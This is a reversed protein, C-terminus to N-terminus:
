RGTLNRYLIGFQSVLSGLDMLILGGFVACLFAIGIYGIGQASPRDDQASTKRRLTSSLNKKPISIYAAVSSMKSQFSKQEEENMITESVPCLCKCLKSISSSSSIFSSPNIRSNVISGSSSSVSSDVISRSNGSDKSNKSSSDDSNSTMGSSPKSTTSTTEVSHSESNSITCSTSDCDLRRTTSSYTNFTTPYISFSSYKTSSKEPWNSTTQFDSPVQTSELASTCSTAHIFSTLASADTEYNSSHTLMSTIEATSEEMSSSLHLTQTTSESLYSSLSSDTLFSM